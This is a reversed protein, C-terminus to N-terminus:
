ISDVDLWLSLPSISEEPFLLYFFLHLSLFEIVIDLVLINTASTFNLLCDFILIDWYAFLVPLGLLCTVRFALLLPSMGAPAHEM